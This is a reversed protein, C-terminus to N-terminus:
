LRDAARLYHLCEPVHEFHASVPVGPRDLQLDGSAGLLASFPYDADDAPLTRDGARDLESRTRAVALLVWMENGFCETEGCYGGSSEMRDCLSVFQGHTVTPGRKGFSAAGREWETGGM